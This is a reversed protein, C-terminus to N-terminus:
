GDHAIGSLNMRFEFRRGANNAQPGLDISCGEAELLQRVIFLGLGRGTGRPKRTVFQDFLIAEVSKEVGPGNDSVIVVPGNVTITVVGHAILGQDLGVKLWYASNLLLNDFVQTLRGRSTRVVFPAPDVFKVVLEMNSSQWHENYYDVIGDLFESIAFVERRDRVYRLTPAFHGLEKRLAGVSSRVAQLYRRLERETVGTGEMSRAVSQTRQALADAITFMEHSLAEATLGLAMAETGEALQERLSAIEDRLLTSQAQATDLQHLAGDMTGLADRTAALTTRLLDLTEVIRRGRQQPDERESPEELVNSAVEIAEDVSSRVAGITARAEAARMLAADLQKGVDEVSAGPTVDAAAERLEKLYDVFQRRVFGQVEATFSTFDGMLARLARYHPTDTFGERDTKEILQPNHQGTLAVYGITNAPKLSYYSTGSTWQEGLQLWDADVRVGFGDRYVRIGALDKVIQRYEAGVGLVENESGEGPALSFSDIEARFPGPNALKPPQDARADADAEEGSGNEHEVDSGGSIDEGSEDDPRLAPFLQPEQVTALAPDNETEAADALVDALIRTRRFEIFWRGTGRQVHYGQGKSTSTLRDIFAQGNDAEVLSAFIQQDKVQQPRFFALAARGTIELKEGDFKIDYHLQAVNRLDKGIQALNLPTGDVSLSVTFGSVGEYPSIVQSIQRQLAIGGEARWREPDNLESVIITTGRTRSSPREEVQVGVADLTQAQFFDRWNFAVTLATRSNERKTVLQLGWGLRQVGLRGLGKDGLPTRDKGTKEGSAKADAKPSRAILLWGDRVTALDMGSGDDQIEIWGPGAGEREQLLGEPHGSTNIQVACYSADADYSNKILELLAQTEDTILEQGLKFVVLPDIRFRETIEDAM